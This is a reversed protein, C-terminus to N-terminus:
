SADGSLADSLIKKLQDHLDSIGKQKSQYEKLLVEPDHVVQDAGNPNKIDLNYNREVIEDM